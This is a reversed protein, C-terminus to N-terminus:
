NSTQDDRSTHQTIGNRKFLVRFAPGVDRPRPVLLRIPVQLARTGVVTTVLYGAVGAAAAGNAGFRSALIILAVIGVVVGGVQAFTVAFGRNIAFLSSTLVQNVVVLVTGASLIMTTTVAPQFANGFILPVAVPAAVLIAAGAVLGLVVAHKFSEALLDARQGDPATAIPRFTAAGVANGAPTPAMTVSTAVSYLGVANPGAIPLLMIIDLRYSSMEAIQAGFARFSEKALPRISVRSGRFSVENFHITSIYTAVLSLGYAAIATSVTLRGSFFLFLVALVYFIPQALTLISIKRYEARIVLHSIAINRSVVLPTAALSCYLAVKQTSSLDSFLLSDVAFGVAITPIISLVGLLQATRVVAHPDPDVACRRRVVWPLGFSALLPVLFIVATVAATIGRGDPGLARALIPASALTVISGVIKSMLLASPSNSIQLARVLM